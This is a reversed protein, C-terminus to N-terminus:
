RKDEFDIFDIMIACALLTCKVRVDLDAPFNIAFNDCNTFAAKMFGPYKRTIAGVTQSGSVVMYGRDGGCDCESPFPVCLVPRRGADFVTLSGRSCLTSNYSVFGAAIGPPAEVIMECDTWLKSSRSISFAHRGMGDTVTFYFGRSDGLMQAAMFGGLGQQFQCQDNYIAYKNPTDILTLVEIIDTKQRVHAGACPLLYELGPPITLGVPISPMVMWQEGGQLVIPPGGPQAAVMPQQQPRYQQPSQQQQMMMPQQQQQQMPQMGMPQMQQLP